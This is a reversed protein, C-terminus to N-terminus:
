PPNRGYENKLTMIHQVMHQCTNSLQVLNPHMHVHNLFLDEIGLDLNINDARRGGGGGAAELPGGVRAARNLKGRAAWDLDSHQREVTGVKHFCRRASKLNRADM